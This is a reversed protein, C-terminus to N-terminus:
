LEIFADNCYVQAVAGRDAYRADDRADPLEKVFLQGDLLYGLRRPAPGSGLKLPPGPAGRVVAASSRWELRPDTLDTYPWLVLRRGARPSSQGRAGLHLSASGGLHLQTIAWPAGRRAETGENALVHDVVLRDDAERVALSKRLGAADVPGTVSVTGEAESVECPDDDAAYTIDATEPGAWLRHGGRFRYRGAPGGDLGHSDDLRAFLSPRSQWSLDLLRPGYSTPITVDYDGVAVRTPDTVTVRAPGGDLHRPQGQERAAGPPGVE